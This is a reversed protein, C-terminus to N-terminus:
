LITEVVESWCVRYYIEYESTKAEWWAEYKARAEKEDTAVVFRMDDKLNVEDNMYESIRIEGKILFKEMVSVRNSLAMIVSKIGM